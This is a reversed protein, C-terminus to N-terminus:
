QEQCGCHGGFHPLQPGKPAAGRSRVHGECTEAHEATRVPEFEPAVHALTFSQEHPCVGSFRCGCSEKADAVRRIIPNHRTREVAVTGIERSNTFPCFPAVAVCANSTSKTARSSFRKPVRDPLHRITERINCPRHSCRAKRVTRLHLKSPTCGRPIPTALQIVHVSYM